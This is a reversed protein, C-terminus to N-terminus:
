VQVLERLQDLKAPGIGRVELLGDVSRFAGHRDRHAVIAAATAPGVGPLGDLQDATATNLDIPEVPADSGPTGAPSPLAVVVEGQQPAYVRQGDTLKAALALADLDALPTPGGAADVLDTVRAGEPLRYVGPRAVAGAAQVVLVGDAVTTTAARPAAATTPSAGPALPLRDEVSAAPARLLWWGAAAVVLVAAAVAALKAPRVAGTALAGARDRWNLPPAPRILDSM